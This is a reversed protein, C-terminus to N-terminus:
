AVCADSDSPIGTEELSHSSPSLILSLCYITAEAQISDIEMSRVLHHDHSCKGLEKSGHRVVLFYSNVRPFEITNSQKEGPHRIKSNTHISERGMM